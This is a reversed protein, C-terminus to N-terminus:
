ASESLIILDDTYLLCNIRQEGLLVPMCTEDSCNNLDNVCINFMNPSLKDGQFVGLQSQFVETLGCYNCIVQLDILSHM